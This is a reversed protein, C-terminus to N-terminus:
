KYSHFMMIAILTHTQRCTMCKDHMMITQMPIGKNRNRTAWLGRDVNWNALLLLLVLPFRLVDITLQPM